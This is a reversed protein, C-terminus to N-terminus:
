LVEFWSMGALLALMVGAFVQARNEWHYSLIKGFKLGLITYFVSFIAITSALLVPSFTAPGIGVGFGAVLNDMSLALELLILGLITTVKEALEKDVEPPKTAAYFSVGSLGLLILASLATAFEGISASLSDGLWIGVLPMLFEFIGFVIIIRWIRKTGLTGIALAAALNNSGIVAGIFLLKWTM